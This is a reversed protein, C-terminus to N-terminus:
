DWRTNSSLRASCGITSHRRTRIPEHQVPQSIARARQPHVPHSCSETPSNMHRQSALDPLRQDCLRHPRKRDIRDPMAHYLMPHVILRDGSFPSGQGSVEYRMADYGVLSAGFDCGAAAM